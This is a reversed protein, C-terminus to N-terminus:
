ASGYLFLGFGICASYGLISPVPNDIPIGILFLGIGGFIMLSFGLIIKVIGM